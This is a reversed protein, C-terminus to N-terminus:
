DLLAGDRHDEQRSECPRATFIRVEKGEALWAKVREAAEPSVRLLREVMAIQESITM